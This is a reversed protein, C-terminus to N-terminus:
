KAQVRKHLKTVRTEDHAGARARALDNLPVLFPNIWNGGPDALEACAVALIEESFSSAGRRTMLSVAQKMLTVIPLHVGGTAAHMRRVMGDNNRFFSNDLGTKKEMLELLFAMRARDADDDIDYPKLEFARHRRTKLQPNIEFLAMAVAMGTMVVPIKAHDLFHQKITDTVWYPISGNAKKHDVVHSIEDFLLLEKGNRVLGDAIREFTLALSQKVIPLRLQKLCVEALGAQSFPSPVEALFLPSSGDERLPEAEM